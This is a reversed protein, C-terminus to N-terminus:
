QPISYGLHTLGAAIADSEDFMAKGNNGHKWVEGRSVQLFPFFIYVGNRVRVKTADKKGGIKKKITTAGVQFVSVTLEMAVTQAVCAASNALYSQTAAVFNGGGVAPVIESVLEDVGSHWSLTTSIRGRMYSMMKLKYPQFDMGERPCAWIGSDIWKPLKQPDFGGPNHDGEIIAWGMREAGPDLALVKTM